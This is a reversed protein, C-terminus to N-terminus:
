DQLRILEKAILAAGKGETIGELANKMLATKQPNKMILAVNECIRKIVETKQLEGGSVDGAYAMGEKNKWFEVNAKQNDALQYFVAPLRVAACETLVTGAAVVALSCRRMLSAMDTVNRYLHINTYRDALIQIDAADNVLSGVVVEWEIRNSCAELLGYDEAAKLTAKIMGHMDAGGATLLIHFGDAGDPTEVTSDGVTEFRKGNLDGGAESEEGVYFQRRLPAYELGFLFGTARGKYGTVGEYLSEYGVSSYYGSYNILLDVPFAEKGLDDIYAVPCLKSVEEFYKRTVFYSDVLLAKVGRNSLEKKLTCLEGEMDDYATGMVVTDANGIGESYGDFLAKSEDDAFFFVVREGLSVIEKAITICRMVHGTAIIRNADARIGIM